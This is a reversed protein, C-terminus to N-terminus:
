KLVHGSSAPVITSRLRITEPPAGNDAALAVLRGAALKGLEVTRPVIRHVHNMGFIPLTPTDNISLVEVADTLEMRNLSALVAAMFDDHVCFVATPPDDAQMMGTLIFHIREAFEQFGDVPGPLTRLWRTQLEGIESLVRLYADLRGRVSSVHLSDNTLHAIRRHGRETLVRLGELSSEFEDTVVADVALGDPIRDVCVLPIRSALQALQATNEPAATPFVIIGDAREEVKSLVESERQPLGGTDHLVLDTGLPLGQSIGQLYSAQPNLRTDHLLVAVSQLRRRNSVVTGVRPRREVLGAEQLESMVRHATMRSIGWEKAFDTESPLREGRKIEGDQISAKMRTVIEEWRTERM